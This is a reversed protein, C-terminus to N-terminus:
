SIPAQVDKDRRQLENAIQAFRELSLTEGRVTPSLGCTSLIEQLEQKSQQPFAAALGNVLTKRRMAFSGRVVRFFLSEDPMQPLSLRRCRLTLVASTVKPQPIFCSAPVDFLLEPQAYYRCFVSFAGYERAGPQACIRQAVEKQVMVTVSSFLRSELLRSLVPTTIGYPLNACVMPTKGPFQEQVLQALDLKMVDGLVLHFHSFGEMTQALIPKLASDLEIAVVKGARLCLQQSLPGMGPGVELVASEPGVGALEAMQAPVWSQTLFNQGKAKSFHFSHEALLTKIHNINCADIM